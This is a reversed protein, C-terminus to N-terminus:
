KAKGKAAQLRKKARQFSEADGGKDPHLQQVERRAAAVEAKPDLASELEAIRERYSRALRPNDAFQKLQRRAVALENEASPRSLFGEGRWKRGLSGTTSTASTVARNGIRV